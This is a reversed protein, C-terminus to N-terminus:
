CCSPLFSGCHPRLLGHPGSYGGWKWLMRLTKGRGSALHQQSRPKGLSQAGRRGKGLRWRHSTPSASSGQPGPERQPEPFEPDKLESTGREEQSKGTLGEPCLGSAQSRSRVESGLGELVRVAETQARGAPAPLAQCCQPSGITTSVSICTVFDM